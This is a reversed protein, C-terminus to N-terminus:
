PGVVQRWATMDREFIPPSASAIQPAAPPSARLGPAYVRRRHSFPPNGPLEDNAGLRTAVGLSSNRNMQLSGGAVGVALDGNLVHM